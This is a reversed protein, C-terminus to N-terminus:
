KKDNLLFFFYIIYISIYLLRNRIIVLSSIKRTMLSLDPHDNKKSLPTRANRKAVKQFLYKKGTDFSKKKSKDKVFLVLGAYNQLM